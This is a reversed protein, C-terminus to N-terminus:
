LLLKPVQSARFTCFPLLVFAYHSWSPYADHLLTVLSCYAAAVIHLLVTAWLEPHHIQCALLFSANRLPCHLPVYPEGKIWVCHWVAVAHSVTSVAILFKPAENIMWDDCKIWLTESIHWVLSDRFQTQCTKALKNRFPMIKAVQTESSPRALINGFLMWYQIESYHRALINRFFM